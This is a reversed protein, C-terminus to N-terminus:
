KPAPAAAPTLGLAKLTGADFSTRAGTEAIDMQGSGYSWVAWSFGRAEAEERMETLWRERDRAPAGHRDGSARAVGFEGLLIRAPDIRHRKAWAAVGDFMAGMAHRDYDRAYYHRLQRAVDVLAAIKETRPMPQKAILRSSASLPVSIPTNRSPYPVDALFERRGRVSQHTFELPTYDHFTFVIREDAAFPAPDLNLLGEPTGGRGGSLVLTLRPAVKRVAAHLAEVENQWHADDDARIQPENMLELAVHATDRAALMRAVRVTANRYAAAMADTFFAPQYDEHQRNPHLDVIVNLGAKEITAIRDGLIRALEADKEGGTQLFPGPDVTLRVFDFGAAGLAAVDKALLAYQGGGFPPFVYTKSPWPEIEAWNLAYHLGVGRHFVPREEASSASAWCLLLAAFVPACYRAAAAGPKPARRRAALEAAPM